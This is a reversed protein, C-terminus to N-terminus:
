HEDQHLISKLLEGFPTKFDRSVRWPASPIVICSLYHFYRFDGDLGVDYSIVEPKHRQFKRRGEDDLVIDIRETLAIGSFSDSIKVRICKTVDQPHMKLSRVDMALVNMALDMVMLPYKEEAYFESSMHLSELLSRFQTRNELIWGTIGVSCEGLSSLLSKLRMKLDITEAINAKM